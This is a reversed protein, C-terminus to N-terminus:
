TTEPSLLLCRYVRSAVVYMMGGVEDVVKTTVCQECAPIKDM